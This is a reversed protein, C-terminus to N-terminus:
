SKSEPIVVGLVAASGRVRINENLLTQLCPTNRLTEFLSLLLQLLFSNEFDELTTRFSTTRATTHPCSADTRGFLRSRGETTVRTPRPQDM